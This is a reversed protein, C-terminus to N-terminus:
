QKHPYSNIRELQKIEDYSYVKCDMGDRKFDAAAKRCEEFSDGIYLVDGFRTHGVSVVCYQYEKM